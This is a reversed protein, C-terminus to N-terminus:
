EFSECTLSFNFLFVCKSTYINLVGSVWTKIEIQFGYRQTIILYVTWPKFRVVFVFDLIRQTLFYEHSLFICTFMAMSSVSLCLWPLYLYVHGLLICTFIALSSVPLCSWPPYLYVHGLLIYLYVYGLFICIVNGLFICAFMALSSVPLCPWTPYLYLHGLLFLFVHVNVLYLEEM